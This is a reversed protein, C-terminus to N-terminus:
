GRAAQRLARGQPPLRGESDRIRRMIAEPRSSDIPPGGNASPDRAQGPVGDIEVEFESPAAARRDLM